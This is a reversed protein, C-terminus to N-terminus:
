QSFDAFALACFRRKARAFQHLRVVL